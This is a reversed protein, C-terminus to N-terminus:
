DGIGMKKCYRILNQRCQVETEYPGYVNTWSEDWFYWGDRTIGASLEGVTPFRTDPFFFVPDKSQSKSM